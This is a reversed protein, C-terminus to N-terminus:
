VKAVTNEGLVHQIKDIFLRIGVPKIIYDAAGLERVKHEGDDNIQSTLVIVPIRSAKKLQKKKCLFKFGDMGPMIIDLVILDPIFSHLKALASAGDTYTLVNYGEEVLISKHLFNNTSSDDILMITQKNNVNM